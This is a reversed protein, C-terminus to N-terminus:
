HKRALNIIRKAKLSSKRLKNQNILYDYSNSINAKNKSIIENEEDQKKRFDQYDACDAHCGVHRAPCNKCPAKYLM